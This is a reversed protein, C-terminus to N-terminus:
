SSFSFPPSLWSEYEAQLEPNGTIKLARNGDDLVNAGRGM